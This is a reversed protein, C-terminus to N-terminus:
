GAQNLARNNLICSHAQAAGIYPSSWSPCNVRPCPEPQWHFELSLPIPTQGQYTYSSQSCTQSPLNAASCAYERSCWPIANAKTSIQGSFSRVRSHLFFVKQLDTLGRISKSNLYNQMVWYWYNVLLETENLFIIWWCGKSLDIKPFFFIILFINNRLIGKGM